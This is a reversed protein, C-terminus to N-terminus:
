DEPFMEDLIKQYQKKKREALALSDQMDILRGFNVDEKCCQEHIEAEKTAIQEDLKCMELEAQKKARAAKVPALTMKLTDEGMKLVDKYTPLKM